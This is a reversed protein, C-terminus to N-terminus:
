PDPRGGGGREGQSGRAVRATGSRRRMASLPRWARAQGVQGVSRFAISLGGTGASGVSLLVLHREALPGRRLEQARENQDREAGTSWRLLDTKLPDPAGSVNVATATFHQIPEKKQEQALFFSATLLGAVLLALATGRRLVANSRMPAEKLLNIVVVTSDTVNRAPQSCISYSLM